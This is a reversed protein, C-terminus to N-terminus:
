FQISNVAAPVLWNCCTSILIMICTIKPEQGPLLQIPLHAAKDEASISQASPQQLHTNSPILFSPRTPNILRQLSNISVPVMQQLKCTSNCAQQLGASRNPHPKKPQTPNKGGRFTGKKFPQPQYNNGPTPLQNVAKSPIPQTVM